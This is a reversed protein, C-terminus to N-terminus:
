VGMGDAIYYAQESVFENFRRLISMQEFPNNRAQALEQLIEDFGDEESAYLMVDKISWTKGCQTYEEGDLLDQAIDRTEQERIYSNDESQAQKIEYENLAASNGCLM